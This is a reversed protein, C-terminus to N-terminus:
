VEKYKISKQAPNSLLNGKYDFRSGHCPCDWSLEDPNWKLQCGLHPCKASILYVRGQEDKYAGYKEGKYNVIAGQCNKLQELNIDAITFFTKSLGAVANSSECAIGSIDKVTFRAPTFLEEYSNYKNNIMDNIIIASVMSSSMGWKNFGTAVYWNPKDKSYNGIFPVSDPTICDQASFCQIVRSDPFLKSAKETLNRYRNGDPNKGTRHKEGGFLLIDGVNRLSYSNDDAGMYYGDYIKANKLAIVYSREQHMRAFYVGPFNVFPYHTAFVIKDANVKAKPTILVNDRDFLLVPTNEYIELNKSIESIFKLPHFQAQNNFKVAGSNEIPIHIKECFEVPLDLEKCALYEQQILELDKSYIYSSVRKFDCDISQYNILDEYEDIAQQNAKAYLKSKEKGFSNILKHYIFNHQSTIKATTYQTEGNAIRNGELVVVKHGSNQLKYAILIGAMGGGIVAIETNLDSTLEKRKPIQTNYHWISKMFEEM